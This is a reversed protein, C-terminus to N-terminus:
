GRVIICGTQEGISLTGLIAGIVQVALIALIELMLIEEGTSAM